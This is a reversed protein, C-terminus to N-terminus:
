RFQEGRNDALVCGAYKQLIGSEISAQAIWDNRDGDLGSRRYRREFCRAMRKMARCASNFWPTTPRYHSVVECRPALRDLLDVLTDRYRDAMDDPSLDSWESADRCLLSNSLQLRFAEKDFGRWARTSSYFPVPLPRRLPLQHSSRTIRYPLLIFRGAFGTLKRPDQSSLMLHTAQLM